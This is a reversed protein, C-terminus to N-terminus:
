RGRRKAGPLQSVEPEPGPHSNLWAAAMALDGGRGYTSAADAPGATSAVPALSMPTAPPFDCMDVPPDEVAWPEGVDDASPGMPMVADDVRELLNWVNSQEPVPPALEWPFGTVFWSGGDDFIQVSPDERHEAVFAAVTPEDYTAVVSVDQVLGDPGVRYYYAAWGQDSSVFQVRLDVPHVVIPDVPILDEPIPDVVVPDTIVVPDDGGDGLIAPPLDCDPPRVPEVAKPDDVIPDAIIVPDEGGDGRVPLPLECDPLPVDSDSPSVTYQVDSPDAFGDSALVGTCTLEGSGCFSNGERDALGSSSGAIAFADGTFQDALSGVTVSLM